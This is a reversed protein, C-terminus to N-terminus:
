SFGMGQHPHQHPGESRQPQGALGDRAGVCPGAAGYCFLWMFVGKEKCRSTIETSLFWVPSVAQCMGARDQGSHPLCLHAFGCSGWAGCPVHGQPFWASPHGGLQPSWGHHSCLYLLWCKCVVLRSRTREKGTDSTLPMANCCWWCNLTNSGFSAKKGCIRM